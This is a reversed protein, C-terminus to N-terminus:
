LESILGTSDGFHDVNVGMRDLLTMHLNALPRPEAYKIHKGGRHKGSGGGVVLAPVNTHDHASPNGMGSGIMYM